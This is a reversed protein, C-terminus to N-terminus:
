QKLSSAGYIDLCANQDPVFHVDNDNTSKYNTRRIYSFIKEIPM